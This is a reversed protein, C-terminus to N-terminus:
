SSDIPDSIRHNNRYVDFAALFNIRFQCTTIAIGNLPVVEQSMDLGFMEGILIEEESASTM